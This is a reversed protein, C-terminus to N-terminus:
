RARGARALEALKGVVWEQETMPPPMEEVFKRVQAALDAQRDLMLTDIVSGWARQIISRTQVLKSNGPEAGAVALARSRTAAQLRDRM